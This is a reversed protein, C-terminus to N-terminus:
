RGSELGEKTTTLSKSLGSRARRQVIPRAVIGWFGDLRDIRARNLYLWYFSREDGPVPLLTMAAVQGDIYHTTHIQIIAMSAHRDAVRHVSVHNVGVIPKFGFSEKSWYFFNETGPLTGSPYHLLYERFGPDADLPSPRQTLLARLEEGVRLPEDDHQYAPLRDFGGEQYTALYSFLTGKLLTTATQRWDPARWDVEAQFRRIDSAPLRLKCDGVKCKRLDELDDPDPTLAELDAPVPPSSFRSIGEVFDSRRFGELTLFQEVFRPISGRIRIAGGTAVERRTASPLTKVVPRGQDLAALEKDSLALTAQLLQRADAGVAQAQSSPGSIMGAAMGAGLVTLVRLVQRPNKV